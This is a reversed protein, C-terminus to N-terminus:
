LPQPKPNVEVAAAKDLMDGMPNAFGQQTLAIFACAALSAGLFALVFVPHRM